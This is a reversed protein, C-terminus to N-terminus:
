YWGFSEEEEEPGKTKLTSVFTWKQVEKAFPMRLTLFTESKMNVLFSHGIICCCHLLIFYKKIRQM